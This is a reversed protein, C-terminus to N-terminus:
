VMFHDATLLIIVVLVYINIKMFYTMPKFVAGDMKLLKLFAFILWLSLVLIGYAAIMSDVVKFTPLMLAAIATSVTWLFTVRRIHSDSYYRSLSPYGASEYDSGYKLMLLWFHPVQWIFFFFAMIMARSDLLAGGGAVWGVLPPLAGIVSGPIVAFPTVKKMPTYIFNYWVLAAFGLLMATLGSNILIMAMGILSFSIALLLAGTASIRGSPIPRKATREMQADSKREQWQNLIASGCALIFLGLVTIIMDWHFAEAALVYGTITTLMVAFTIKIKSLELITKIM